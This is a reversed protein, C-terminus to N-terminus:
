RWVLCAYRSKQVRWKQGTVREAFKPDTVSKYIIGAMISSINGAWWKPFSKPSMGDVIATDATIGDYIVKRRFKPAFVIHYKCNWKTHALSNIDM